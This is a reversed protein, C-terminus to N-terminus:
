PFLRALFTGAQGKIVVGTKSCSIRWFCCACSAKKSEQGELLGRKKGLGGLGFFTSRLM